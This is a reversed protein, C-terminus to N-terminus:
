CIVRLSPKEEKLAALQDEMEQSWYIDYLVLQELACAPQRVSDLLQQIGADGLGNNSLDLERLSRSALLTSALSGCGGNTVECDGL